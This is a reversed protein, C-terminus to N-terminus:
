IAAGRTVEELATQLKRTTLLAARLQVECSVCDALRSLMKVDDASWDRPKSDIVCLAGLPAHDPGRVPVGLYAIVNLEPIALNDKVRPNTRADVVVLPEGDAVVHQCFSHSLPTQRYADWPSPLGIQSTFFQRDWDKEVISVLAVPAGLVSAALETLGDMTM